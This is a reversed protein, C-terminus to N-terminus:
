RNWNYLCAGCIYRNSLVHMEINRSQCRPCRFYLLSTKMPNGRRTHKTERKLHKQCAPNICYYRKGDDSVYCGLRACVPPLKEGFYKDVKPTAGPAMSVAAVAAPAPKRMAAELLRRARELATEKPAATPAAAPDAAPADSM